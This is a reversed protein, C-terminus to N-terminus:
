HGTMRGSVEWFNDKTYTCIGDGLSRALSDPCFFYLAWPGSLTRVLCIRQVLQNLFLIHM